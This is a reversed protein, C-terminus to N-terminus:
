RKPAPMPLGGAPPTMAPSPNGPTGPVPRADRQPAPRQPQFQPRPAGPEGGVHGPLPEGVPPNAGPRPEGSITRFGAEGSVPPRGEPQLPTPRPDKGPVPPQKGPQPKGDPKPLAQGDTGPKGPFPKEPPTRGDPNEPRPGKPAQGDQPGRPGNKGDPGTPGAPGREGPAGDPRPGKWGKMLGGFTGDDQNRPAEGPLPPAMDPLRERLERPTVKSDLVGDVAEDLEKKMEVVQADKDRGDGGMKQRADRNFRERLEGIALDRELRDMVADPDKALREATGGSGDQAGTGMTLLRREGLMAGMERGDRPMTQRWEGEVKRKHADDLTREKLLRAMMLLDKQTNQRKFGDALETAKDLPEERVDPGTAGTGAVPGTSAAAGTGSAGPRARAVFLKRRPALRRESAGTGAGPLDILAGADEPKDAFSDHVEVQSGSDTSELYVATGRVGASLDPTRFTYLTGDGLPKLVRAWLAGKELTADASTDSVAAFALRSAAALRVTTGDSFTVSASSDEGTSLTDGAALATSGPVVQRARAAGGRKTVSGQAETVFAAFGEATTQAVGGTSATGSGAQVSGSNEGAAEWAVKGDGGDWWCGSLSLSAACLALASVLKTKHM